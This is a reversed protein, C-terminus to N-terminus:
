PEAVYALSCGHYIAYQVVFVKEPMYSLKAKVSGEVKVKFSDLRIDQAFDCGEIPHLKYLAEKASWCIHVAEMKGVEDLACLEDPHLFRPAVRLAKHGLTEIDVGIRRTPHLAIVVYSKTHSVSIYGGDIYPSGDSRHHLVIDTGFYHRLLLAEALVEKKRKVSVSSSYSEPLSVKGWMALLDELEEALHWTLIQVYPVPTFSEQYPM